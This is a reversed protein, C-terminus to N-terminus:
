PKFVEIKFLAIFVVVLAIWINRSLDHIHEVSDTKDQPIDRCLVHWDFWFYVPPVLVWFGVILHKMFESAQDRMYVAYGLSLIALIASICSIWCNAADRRSNEWKAKNQSQPM